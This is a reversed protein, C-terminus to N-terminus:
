PVTALSIVQVLAEVNDDWRFQHEVVRRCHRSMKQIDSAKLALVGRALQSPDEPEVLFGTEPTLIEVHGGSRTAVVPLGSAFAELIVIPFGEGKRSPLVFIDAAAYVAPLDADAVMGLFIVNQLQRETAWKEAAELDPGTGAIVFLVDPDTVEVAARLLIDIGNKFTIRRVTLCVFRSEPLGLRMRLSHKDFSPHFRHCDIGNYITHIKTAAKPEVTAVYQATENSVAVVLRSLRINIRGITRDLFTSALTVLASPAVIRTNHQTLIIPKRQLRAVLSVILSFPYPHGHVNVVDVDRTLTWLTRINRLSPYPIALPIGFNTYTCNLTKLRVIPIGTSLANADGTIYHSTLLVVDNGRDHLRQAQQTIVHEIGGHFSLYQYAILIRLPPM